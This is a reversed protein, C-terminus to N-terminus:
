LCSPLSFSMDKPFYGSTGRTSALSRWLSARLSSAVPVSGMAWLHKDKSRCTIMTVNPFHHAAWAIEQPESWGCEPCGTLIIPKLHAVAEYLDMADAILPLNRYFDGRGRIRSWFAEPGKSRRKLPRLLRLQLCTPTISAKCISFDMGFHPFYRAPVARCVEIVTTIWGTSTTHCRVCVPGITRTANNALNWYIDSANTGGCSHHTRSEHRCNTGDTGRNPPHSQIPAEHAWEEHPTDWIQLCWRDRENSTM